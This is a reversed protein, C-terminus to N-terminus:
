AAITTSTTPFSPTVPAGGSDRLVKLAQAFTAVPKVTIKSGARRTAQALDAKCSALSSPSDDPSCQPVIFLKVGAARAAVAKQQIGGIEGVNGEPDITGTVAVRAGGTLNGPTLDDFIALTMALGASPGGIDRTDVNVKFPFTFRPSVLVGVVSRGQDTAVGVNVTMQKGSRVIVFVVHEGKHHKSIVKTLDDTRGITHGDASLIVDGWRLTTIAPLDPFLDSVVLGPQVGVKYGAAELAVATASTKADAMQQLGEDNVQEPTLKGPNAVADKVIDINPDLRAQVYRWLSVHEAERVFLLRIDGRSTAYTPAGQVTVLPPLSLAEGPAITTYPVHIVFGAIAVIAMVVVIGLAIGKLWSRRRRPPPPAPVGPATKEEPGGGAATGATEM